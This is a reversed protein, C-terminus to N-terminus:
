TVVFSFDERISSTWHDYRQKSRIRMKDHLEHNTVLADMHQALTLHDTPAFYLAAEGAVEPLTPMNSLILPLSCQLAELVPLGFGEYHSAMILAHAKEYLAWLAARPLYGTITVRDRYKSNALVRWMSRSKWGPQGAIVWQHDPHKQAIIEFAKLICLHNKRPELTGVTLFYPRSPITHQFARTDTAIQPIIVQPYVVRIKQDPIRLREVIDLKTQNSNVILIHAKKLIQPLLWRHMLTSLLSHHQPHSLPTLDHVVTIRRIHDPLSFPGFHALEIVIDPDLAAVKKPITTLQRIRLHGPIYPHVPVIIQDIDLDNRAATLVIGYEHEPLAAVIRKVLQIGYYHIGTQQTTISDGLFIIKM